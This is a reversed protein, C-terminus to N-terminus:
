YFFEGDHKWKLLPSEALRRQAAWFVRRGEAALRRQVDCFRRFQVFVITPDGSFDKRHPFAILGLSSSYAPQVTDGVFIVFPDTWTKM